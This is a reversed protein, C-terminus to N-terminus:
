KFWGERTGNRILKILKTTKKYGRSSRVIYGESFLTKIVEAAQLKNGNYVGEMDRDTIIHALFFQERNPCDILMNKITDSFGTEEKGNILAAYDRYNCFPKDYIKHQFDIVFDVHEKKVLVCENDSSTSFTMCAAAVALRALKTAYRTEHIIEAPTNGYIKIMEMSCKLIYETNGPSFIVQEPKRSWAWSILDRCVDTTFEPESRGRSLRHITHIDIEQGSLMLVLDLRSRDEQDMFIQSVLSIPYPEEEIKIQRPNSCYLVRVRATTRRTGGECTKSAVGSSRMSTLSKIVEPQCGHVEDIFLFKRDCVPFVGWVLCKGSVGLKSMAGILGPVTVQEGTIEHGVNYHQILSKVTDSKATGSDGMVFVEVWGRTMRDNFLFRLCSFICLNTATIVDERDWMKVVSQEMDKTLANVKESVTKYQYFVENIQELCRFEFNDLQNEHAEISDFMYTLKQSHPIKVPYGKVTYSENPLISTSIVFGAKFTKNISGDGVKETFNIEYAYKYNQMDISTINKCKTRFKIVEGKKLLSYIKESPVNIIKIIKEVDLDECYVGSGYFMTCGKCKDCLTFKCKITITSPFVYPQSDIGVITIDTKIYKNFYHISDIDDFLVEAAKINEIEKPNVKKANNLLALFETKRKTENINIFYETLDNRTTKFNIKKVSVKKAIRDTGKEGASDNDFFTYVNKKMFFDVYPDPFTGESGFTIPNYETDKLISLAFLTDPIGACLILNDKHINEYPFPYIKCEKQWLSPSLGDGRLSGFADHRNINVLIGDKYVPTILRLKDIGLTYKKITELDIGRRNYLRKIIDKYGRLREHSQRVLEKEELPEQKIINYNGALERIAQTNTVGKYAAYFNIIDGHVGCSASFCHCTYNDKSYIKFSKDKDNNPHRDGFHSMPCRINTDGGNWEPAYQRWFSIPDIQKKLEEVTNM